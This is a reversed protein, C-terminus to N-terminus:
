GEAVEGVFRGSFKVYSKFCVIGPGIVLQSVDARGPREIGRVKRIRLFGRGQEQFFPDRAAEGAIRMGATFEDEVDLRM